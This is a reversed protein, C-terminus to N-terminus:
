NAVEQGHACHALNNSVAKGITDLSESQFISVLMKNDTKRNSNLPLFSMPVIHVSWMNSALKRACGNRLARFLGRPASPLVHLKQMRQHTVSVSTDWAVFSILQDTQLIPHKALVASTGLQTKLGPFDAAARQVVASFELEICVRCLKIQTDIRGLIEPTGDPVMWVSHLMSCMLSCCYKM